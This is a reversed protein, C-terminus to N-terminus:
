KKDEKPVMFDMKFLKFKKGLKIYSEIQEKGMSNLYAGFDGEQFHEIDKKDFMKVVSYKSAAFDVLNRYTESRKMTGSDIIPDGKFVWYVPHRIFKTIDIAKKDLPVIFNLHKNIIPYVLVNEGFESLVPRINDFILFKNNKQLRSDIVNLLLDATSIVPNSCDGSPYTVITFGSDELQEQAEFIHGGYFDLHFEVTQPSFYESLRWACIAPFCQLLHESVLKEYDRTPESLKIKKRKALRGYVKAESISKKSFLTYFVHIKEVKKSIVEVFKDLFKQKTESDKIDNVCYHKFNVDQGIESFAKKLASGYEKDFISYDRVKVAVGLVSQFHGENGNKKVVDRTFIRSDIGTISVM